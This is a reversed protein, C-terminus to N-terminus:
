NNKIYINPIQNLFVWFIGSKLQVKVSGNTLHTTTKQDREKNQQQFLKMHNENATKLQESQFYFKHSKLTQIYNEYSSSYTWGGTNRLTLFLLSKGQSSFLSQLLVPKVTFHNGQLCGKDSCYKEPQSLFHSLQPSSTISTQFNTVHSLGLPVSKMLKM